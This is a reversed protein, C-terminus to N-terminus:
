KAPSVKPKNFNFHHLQKLPNNQGLALHSDERDSTSNPTVIKRAERLINIM